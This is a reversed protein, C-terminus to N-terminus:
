TQGGTLMTEQCRTSYAEARVPAMSRTKGAVTLNQVQGPSGCWFGRHYKNILIEFAEQSIFMVVKLIELTNSDKNSLLM